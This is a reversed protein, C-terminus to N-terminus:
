IIYFYCNIFDFSNETVCTEPKECNVIIKKSFLIVIVNMVFIRNM